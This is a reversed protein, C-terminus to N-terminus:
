SPKLGNLVKTETITASYISRLMDGALLINGASLWNIWPNHFCSWARVVFLKDMKVKLWLVGHLTVQEGLLTQVPLLKDGTTILNHQDLLLTDNNNIWVFCTDKLFLLQEIQSGLCLIFSLNLSYKSNASIPQSMSARSWTWKAIYSITIHEWEQDAAVGM